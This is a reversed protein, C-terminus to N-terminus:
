RYFLKLLDARTIIGTVEGREEILIAPNNMLVQAIEVLATDFPYRPMSEMVGLEGIEAHGLKEISKLKTKLSHPSLLMRVISQETVVISRLPRPSVIWPM